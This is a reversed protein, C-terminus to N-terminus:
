KLYLPYNTAGGYDVLSDPSLTSDSAAFEYLMSLVTGPAAASSSDTGRFIPGLFGSGAPLYLHDRRLTWMHPSHEFKDDVLGWFPAVDNISMGTDEVAWLPTTANSTYTRLEMQTAELSALGKTGNYLFSVDMIYAKIATACSYIPANWNTGPDLRSGGDPRSAVGM